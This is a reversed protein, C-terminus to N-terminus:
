QDGAHPVLASHFKEAGARAARWQFFLAGDAGRGLHQMSNRAIQGPGKAINREQWNVASTSHEMLLWPKGQAWGRTLDAVLALEQRHDRDEAILYHDNSVLDMQEAWRWYDVPMSLGMNLGMFNTTVPHTSGARLIAAEAKFCDLLADSSFRAFDLQQTPNKFSGTARPPLIEDWDWYHQPGSRRGGRTTSNKSLATGSSCGSGSRLRQPMATVPNITAAMNTTFM